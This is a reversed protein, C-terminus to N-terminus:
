VAIWINQRTVVLSFLQPVRFVFPYQTTPTPPLFFNMSRQVLLPFSVYEYYFKYLHPINLNRHQKQNVTTYSSVPHFSFREIFFFCWCRLRSSLTRVCGSKGPWWIYVSHFSVRGKLYFYLYLYNTLTFVCGYLCFLPDPHKIM